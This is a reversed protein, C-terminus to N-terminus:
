DGVVVLVKERLRAGRYLPACFIICLVFCGLICNSVCFAMPDRCIDELNKVWCCNRIGLDVMSCGLGYDYGGEKSDNDGQGRAASDAGNTCM